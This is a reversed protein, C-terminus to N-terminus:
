LHKCLEFEPFGVLQLGSGTSFCSAFSAQLARKCDILYANVHKSLLTSVNLKQLATVLKHEMLTLSLLQATSCAPAASNFFWGYCYHLDEFKIMNKMLLLSLLVAFTLPILLWKLLICHKYPISIIIVSHYFRVITPRTLYSGLIILLM